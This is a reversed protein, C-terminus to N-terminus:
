AADDFPAAWSQFRAGAHRKPDHVRVQELRRAEELAEQALCLQAARDHVLVDYPREVVVLQEDVARVV